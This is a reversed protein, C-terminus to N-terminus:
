GFRERRAAVLEPLTPYRRVIARDTAAVPSREPRRALIAGAAAVLLVTWTRPGVYAGAAQGLVVWVSWCFLVSPTGLVRLWMSLAIFLVTGWVLGLYIWHLWFYNTLSESIKFYWTSEYTGSGMYITMAEQEIFAEGTLGAGAWPHHKFMDFAVLMPGIIRSFTSSDRGSMFEQVREAYLSTAAIVAGTALIMSLLLVGITRIARSGQHNQGGIFLLYPIVLVLMLVLTPGRLVALGAAVLGVYFALKWRWTSVVLWAFGYHAYGFTVNSPESTFLKARIRGYLAMDRVDADYVLSSDYIRARVMDSIDRLKTHQELVVGILILICFVLLIRAIQRREATILTVFFVFSIVLSYTLQVLGTFRKGLFAYNDASLISAIYLAIVALLGGLHAPDIRDRRRWLLLLGAFGSPACPLPIRETVQLPVGLYIGLLFIVVLTTDFWGLPQERGQASM